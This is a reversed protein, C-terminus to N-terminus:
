TSIVLTGNGVNGTQLECKEETHFILAFKLLIVGVSATHLPEM